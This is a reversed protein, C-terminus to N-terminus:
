PPGCNNDLKQEAALAIPGTLRLGEMRRRILLCDGRAGEFAEDTWFRKNARWYGIEDFFSIGFYYDSPVSSFFSDDPAFSGNPQLSHDLAWQLMTHMAERARGRQEETMHPWGYRFIKVVDYNNHNNSSARYKWGYPYPDNAIRFTTEIIQPWREVDGQLYSVLHFTMSLDTTRYLRDGVRYWAGWYGTSSDQWANLFRRVETRIQTIGGSDRDRVLGEVQDELYPQWHAKFGFQFIGDSLATMEARRDVGDRAIDSVLFQSMMAAADKGSRVEPFLNVAYGPATKRQELEQLGLTTAELKLIPSEYCAGWTGNSPSQRLAYAQDDSGLSAELDRTRQEIKAFDATYIARWKTELFIETSCERSRGANQDDALRNGLERIRDLARQRRALTDPDFKTWEQSLMAKADPGSLLISTESLRRVNEAVDAEASSMDGILCALFFLFFCRM